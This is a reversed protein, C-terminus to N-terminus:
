FDQYEDVDEEPRTTRITMWFKGGARPARSKGAHAAIHRIIRRPALPLEENCVDCRFDHLEFGLSALEKWLTSAKAGPRHRLHIEFGGGSGHEPNIHRAVVEGSIPITTHCSTDSPHVPLYDQCVLKVPVLEGQEFIEWKTNSKSEEVQSAPTKFVQTSETEKAM